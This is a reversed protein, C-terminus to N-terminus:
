KKQFERKSLAGKKKRGKDYVLTSVAVEKKYRNFEEQLATYNKWLMTHDYEATRSRETLQSLRTRFFAWATLGGFFMGGMGILIPLFNCVNM